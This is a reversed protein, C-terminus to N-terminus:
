AKPEKPIKGGAKEFITRFKLFAERFDGRATIQHADSEDGWAHRWLLDCGLHALFQILVKDAEKKSAARKKAAARKRVRVRERAMMALCEGIRKLAWEAYALDHSEWRDPEALIALGKRRHELLVDRGGPITLLRGFLDRDHIMGRVYATEAAYEERNM